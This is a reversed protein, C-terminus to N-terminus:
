EGKELIRSLEKKPNDVVAQYKMKYVYNEINSIITNLRDIEDNKILYDYLDQETMFGIPCNSLYKSYIEKLDGSAIMKSIQRITYDYKDETKKNM